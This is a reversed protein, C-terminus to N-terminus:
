GMTYGIRIITNCDTLMSFLYLSISIDCNNNFTYWINDTGIPIKKIRFELLICLDYLIDINLLSLNP